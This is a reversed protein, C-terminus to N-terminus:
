QKYVRLYIPKRNSRPSPCERPPSFRSPNKKENRFDWIPFRTVAPNEPKEGDVRPRCATSAGSPDTLFHSRVSDPRRSRRPRREKVGNEIKGGRRSRRGREDRGPDTLRKARLSSRSFRVKSVYFPPAAPVNSFSKPTQIEALSRRHSDFNLM